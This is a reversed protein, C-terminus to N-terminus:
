MPACQNVLLFFFYHVGQDFSQRVESADAYKCTGQKVYHKRGLFFKKGDDLVIGFCQRFQCSDHTLVEVPPLMNLFMKLTSLATAEAIGITFSTQYATFFSTGLTTHGFQLPAPETMMPPATRLLGAEVTVQGIQLPAPFIREVSTGFSFGHLRDPCPDYFQQTTQESFLSHNIKALRRSIEIRARRQPARVRM